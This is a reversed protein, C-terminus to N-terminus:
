ICVTRDTNAKKGVRCAECVFWGIKPQIAKPGCKTCKTITSAKSSARVGLGPACVCNGAVLMYRHPTLRSTPLALCRLSEFLRSGGHPLPCGADCARQHQM